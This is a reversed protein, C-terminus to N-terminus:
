RSYLSAFEKIYYKFKEPVSLGKLQFKKRKRKNLKYQQLAKRNMQLNVFEEINVKEKEQPSSIIKLIENYYKKRLYDMNIKINKYFGQNPKRRTGGWELNSLYEIAFVGNKYGNKILRLCYETDDHFCPSLTEDLLGFQKIIWTPICVPSKIVISRFAFQGPLLIKSKESGHGFANEIYDKFPSGDNSELVDDKINGGMRFSLYGLKDGMKEYLYIIKKEILFDMLIVDDQLIINYGEVSQNSLKLAENISMIEHVDNVKIKNISINRNERIIQDIIEESKDTCGDLVPYIFSNANCCKIVSNLVDEILDEKNHITIIYNFIPNM